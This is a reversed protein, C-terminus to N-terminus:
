GHLHLTLGTTGLEIFDAEAFAAIIVDRHATVHALLEVNRLNGLTFVRDLTVVAPRM